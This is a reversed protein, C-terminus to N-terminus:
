KLKMIPTPSPPLNRKVTHINLSKISHIQDITQKGLLDSTYIFTHHYSKGQIGALSTHLFQISSGCSHKLSNTHPVAILQCEEKIREMLDQHLAKDCVIAVSCKPTKSLIQIAFLMESYNM